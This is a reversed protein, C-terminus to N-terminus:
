PWLPFHGSQALLTAAMEGMFVLITAAYLVGTASQTNRYRLIRVVLWALVMPGILGMWRLLMWSLEVTGLTNWQARSLAWISFIMRVGAAVGFWQNMRILPQLPMGTATLYWHGLLMASTTGGILWGASLAAGIDHLRALSTGEVQRTQTAAVVLLASLLTIAFALRTGGLRRELTWYVSGVFSLAALLLTGVQMALFGTPQPADEPTLQGLTLWSLVSLGLTVLMQIRFFGSTIQRRPALCWTLAMGFILRLTFLPIM